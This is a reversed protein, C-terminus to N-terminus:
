LVERVAHAAGPPPQWLGLAGNCPIPARFPKQAKLPLHWQDYEAWPSCLGEDTLCDEWWHAAQLDAVGIAAGVAVTTPPNPAGFMPVSVTALKAVREWSALDALQKGAHIVLLGTYSYRWNSRNEVGKGNFIAWAWPQRVTLARM